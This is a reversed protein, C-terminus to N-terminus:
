NCDGNCNVANQFDSESFIFKVETDTHYFPNRIDGKTRITFIQRKLDDYNVVISDGDFFELFNYGKPPLDDKYTKVLEGGDKLVTTIPTARKPYITRYSNIKLNM